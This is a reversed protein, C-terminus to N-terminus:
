GNATKLFGEIMGVIAKRQAPKARDWLSWISEPDSPDRILLDVVDIGLAEAIAELNEQSYGQNGNEIQSISPGSLGVRSGLREQSLGKNIRWQKIFTPRFPPEKFRTQVKVSQNKQGKAMSFKARSPVAQGHLPALPGGQADDKATSFVGGM